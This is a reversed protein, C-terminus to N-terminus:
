PDVQIATSAILGIDELNSVLRKRLYESDQLIACIFRLLETDAMYCKM